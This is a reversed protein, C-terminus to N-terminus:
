RYNRWRLSSNMNGRISKIEPNLYPTTTKTVYEHTEQLKAFTKCLVVIDYEVDESYSIFYSLLPM